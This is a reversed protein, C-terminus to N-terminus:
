EVTEDLRQIRGSIWPESQELGLLKIRGVGQLIAHVAGDPATAMRAITAATGLTYMEGEYREDEILHQTFVGVMKNESAAAEGVAKIDQEETALLPLLQQPYVVTSGGPILPLIEPIRPQATPSAKSRTQPRTEAHEMSTHEM